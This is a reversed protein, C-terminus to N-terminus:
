PGTDENNAIESWRGKKGTRGILVEYGTGDSSSAYHYIIEPMGDDNMDVIAKVSFHNWQPDPQTVRYVRKWSEDKKAMVVVSSKGAVVAFADGGENRFFAVDKAEKAVKTGVALVLARRTDIDPAWSASKFKPVVGRVYIGTGKNGTVSKFANGNDNETEVTGVIKGWRDISRFRVGSSFAVDKGCQGVDTEIKGDRVVALPLMTESTWFSADKCPTASMFLAVFLNMM